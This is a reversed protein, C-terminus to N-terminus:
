YSNFRLINRFIEVKGGGVTPLTEYRQISSELEEISKANDGICTHSQSVMAARGTGGGPHSITIVELIYKM